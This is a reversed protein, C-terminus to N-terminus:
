NILNKCFYFNKQLILYYYKYDSIIFNILFNLIKLIFILFILSITLSILSFPNLILHILSIFSVSKKLYYLNLYHIQYFIILIIRSYKRIFDPFYQDLYIILIRSYKM